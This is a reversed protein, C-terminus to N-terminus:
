LLKHTYMLNGIKISVEEVRFNILSKGVLPEKTDSKRVDRETPDPIPQSTVTPSPPISINIPPQRHLCAAAGLWWGVSVHPIKEQTSCHCRTVYKHKNCKHM